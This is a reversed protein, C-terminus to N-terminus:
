QGVYFAWNAKHSSVSLLRCTWVTKFVGGRLDRKMLLDNFTELLGRRLLLWAPCPLILVFSCYHSSPNLSFLLFIEVGSTNSRHLLTFACLTGPLQLCGGAFHPLTASPSDSLCSCESLVYAATSVEFCVFSPCIASKISVWIAKVWGSHRRQEGWAKHRTEEGAGSDTRQIILLGHNSALYSLELFSSAAELFLRDCTKTSGAKKRETCVPAGLSEM